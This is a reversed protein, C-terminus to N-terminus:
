YITGSELAPIFLNFKDNELLYQKFENAKIEDGSNKFLKYLRYYSALESPDINAAQSYSIVAEDIQGLSHLYDGHYIFIRARNHNTILSNSKVAKFISAILKENNKCRKEAMCWVLKAISNSTAASVPKKRLKTLFDEKIEEPLQAGISEYLLILGFYGAISGHPQNIAQKFYYESQGAYLVENTQALLKFYELGLQYHSRSSEPHNDVFKQLLITNNKWHLANISASAYILLAFVRTLNLLSIKKVKEFYPIFGIIAILVGLTPLYNRHEFAIELPAITSEVTHFCLFILWGAAFINRKVFFYVAVVTSIFLASLSFLTTLPSTVSTSIAIDDHYLSFESSFPNFILYLYYIIVRTQTLVREVLNFDRMLYKEDFWQSNFIILYLLLSTILVLGSFLLALNVKNCKESDEILFYELLVVVPIILIGNEKTFAALLAFSLLVIWSLTFNKISSPNKLRNKLYFFVGVLVFLATLSNMMQVIYLVNSINIPHILWIFTLLLAFQEKLSTKTNPYKTDIIIKLIKLILYGNILHILINTIKFPTAVDGFITKEIAFIGYAIPRKLPGAHGSFAARIFEQITWENLFLAENGVINPIDDFIFGGGLGLIFIASAIIAFFWYSNTIKNYM